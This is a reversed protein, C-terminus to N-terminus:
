FAGPDVIEGSLENYQKKKVKLERAHRTIKTKLKLMEIKLRVTKERIDEATVRENLLDMSMFSYLRNDTVKGIIIHDLLEIGLIAGAESLRATIECDEHSPYPQQSPHTSPHNHCVVIWDCGRLVAARFIDRIEFDLRPVPAPWGRNPSDALCILDVFELRGKADLGLTFLHERKQDSPSEKQLIARVIGAVHGPSVIIVETKEHIIMTRGRDSGEIKVVM